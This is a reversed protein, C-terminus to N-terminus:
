CAFCYCSELNVHRGFMVHHATAIRAKPKLTCLKLVIALSHYRISQRPYFGAQSIQDGLGLSITRGAINSIRDWIRYGTLLGFRGLYKHSSKWIELIELKRPRDSTFSRHPNFLLLHDPWSVRSQMRCHVLVRATIIGPCALGNKLKAYIIRIGGKSMMQPLETAM